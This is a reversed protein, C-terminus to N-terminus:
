AKFSSSKGWVHLSLSQELSWIRQKSMTMGTCPTFGSINGQSHCNPLHLQIGHESNLQSISRLHSGSWSRESIKLCRIEGLSRVPQRQIDHYDLQVYFLFAFSQRHNSSYLSDFLKTSRNWRVDFLSAKNLILALWFNITHSFFFNFSRKWILSSSDLECREDSLGCKM